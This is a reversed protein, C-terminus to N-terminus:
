SPVQAATADRFAGRLCSAQEDDIGYQALNTDFDYRLFDRYADRLPGNDLESIPGDTIHERTWSVLASIYTERAYLNAAEADPREIGHAPTLDMDPEADPEDDLTNYSVSLSLSNENVHELIALLSEHDDCIGRITYSINM